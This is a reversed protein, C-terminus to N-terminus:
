EDKKKRFCFSIGENLVAQVDQLMLPPIPNQQPTHTNRKKDDSVTGCKAKDDEWFGEYMQGRDKFIFCGQGHKKGDKMYGEYSNGNKLSLVGKGHPKDRLWEGEYVDGNEYVMRGWGSKENKVWEGEYRASSHYFYTGFGEKKDNRWPGAYVCLQKTPLHLKYFAGYGQRQDQEWKGEYMATAKKWMQTGHGHRLNDKWEGTYQDGNLSFFTHQLGNKQSKKELATWRSEKTRLKKILSM